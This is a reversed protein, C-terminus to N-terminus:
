GLEEEIWAIVQLGIALVKTRSEPSLRRGYRLAEHIRDSAADEKGEVLKVSHFRLRGGVLKLLTDLDHTLDDKDLQRTTKDGRRKLLLRKLGCEVAYILLLLYSDNEKAGGNTGERATQAHRRFAKHLQGDTVHTKGEGVDVRQMMRNPVLESAFQFCACIEEPSLMHSERVDSESVGSGLLVLIDEVSCNTRKLTPRM